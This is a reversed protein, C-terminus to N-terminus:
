VTRTRRGDQKLHAVKRLELGVLVQVQPGLDKDVVNGKTM